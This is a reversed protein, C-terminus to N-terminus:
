GGIKQKQKSDVALSNVKAHESILKILITLPHNKTVSSVDTSASFVQSGDTVELSLSQNNQSGQNSGEFVKSERCLELLRLALEKNQGSGTFEYSISSNSRTIKIKFSSIAPNTAELNSLTSEMWARFNNPQATYVVPNKPWSLFLIAATFFTITIQRIM